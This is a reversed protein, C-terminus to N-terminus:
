ARTTPWSPACSRSADRGGPAPRAHLGAGRLLRLPRARRRRRAARLEAAAAHPDVMAALATAYPAVVANEGLGRKLGLGPVGFSSYQYTFDPRARQVRVGLHGLAPRASAGYEIQRRVILRNTENSCATRGARAHGAVADSIRVDIGVLLDAGRRPRGADGARGLRFWHRAPVDGKAIAVFSALRAESALLDYCNPDLTGDAVPIASRSCSASATSCSASSWRSRWRGPRARRPRAPPGRPPPRTRRHPLTAGTRTSRAAPPTPGSSCTRTPTRAANSAGLARAIDAVTEAQAALGALRRDLSAATSPRRGCRRRRARRARRRVPEVDGDAHPSRRAPSRGRRPDPRARRRHRRSAARGHAAVGRWERCANALAILHGALNGSDVSSVYPPELPRLDRTDYWNFFHGRFRALGSMTALTAELRDIADITGIWGFDRARSSRRAPLPRHQDALDPARAGARSRGPLQRAAAHSRRGDRLDRLLALHPARDARLARADADSVPAPAPSWRRCARGTARHRAVALWLAAFPAALPWTGPESAARRRPGRGRRARRAPWGGTSAPSISARTPDGGARGDDM